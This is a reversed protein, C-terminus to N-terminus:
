QLPFIQLSSSVNPLYLILYASEFESLFFDGHEGEDKPVQLNIYVM